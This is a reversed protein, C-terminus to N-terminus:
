RGESGAARPGLALRLPGVSARGNTGLGAATAGAICGLTAWREGAPLAIPRGCRWALRAAAARLAGPALADSPAAAAPRPPRAAADLGAWSAADGRTVLRAGPALYWAEVADDALRRFVWGGHAGLADIERRDPWERVRLASTEDAGYGWAAGSAAMAVLLRLERARESFHTDVIAERALGLGGAPWLTLADEALGPACRAARACGPEPPPAYAIRGEIAAAVSGNSLMAAGSQVAAGASTGGVVVRGAAHAARLASLWANPRDDADVFARRLRWQDGGAFFVGEVDLLAGDDEACFVAARAALDPYVRERGALGLEALRHADLAACDRAPFRAAAMAADVPWWRAEAGLATFVSEYFDVPEMPDIASATVVAIRPTADGARARAAAVFAELVAVGGRERSRAPDARERIRAGRADLPPLEFAARVAAREADTMRSWPSAGEGSALLADLAEADLDDVADGGGLAALGGLWDAIAAPEPAGPASWLRPDSARAVGDADLRHPAVGRGGALPAVCARPALDACLALAGGALITEAPHGARADAAACATAIPALLLLIGAVIVAPPRRSDVM